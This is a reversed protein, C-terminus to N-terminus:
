QEHMTIQLRDEFGKVIVIDRDINHGGGLEAKRDGGLGILRDGSERGVEGLQSVHFVFASLRNDAEDALAQAVSGTKGGLNEADQLVYLNAHNGLACRFDIQGEHDFFVGGRLNHATQM